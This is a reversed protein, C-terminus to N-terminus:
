DGSLSLEGTDIDADPVSEHEVLREGPADMTMGSLDFEAEVFEEQEALRIGVEAMDMTGTDINADPVQEHEALQEGPADMTMASLDFEAEVFEEPDGLTIGVEAMDMTGTDINADPVPTSEVLTIGVPAVSIGPEEEDTLPKADAPQATAAQKAPAAQSATDEIECLAGARQMTLKYRQATSQDIDKKLVLRRGSFLKEVKDADLSFVRGVNAKVMDIDAHEIIAGSFIVQFTGQAM